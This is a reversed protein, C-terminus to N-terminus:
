NVRTAVSVMASAKPLPRVGNLIRLRSLVVVMAVLAPLVVMVWKSIRINAQLNPLHLVMVAKNVLSSAQLSSTLWRDPPNLDQNNLCVVMNLSILPHPEQIDVLPQVAKLVTVKNLDM